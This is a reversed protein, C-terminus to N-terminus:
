HKPIEPLGSTLGAKIARGMWEDALPYSQALGGLGHMYMHGLGRMASASGAKAGKAFWSAAKALNKPVGFGNLYHNGIAYMANGSGAAAAKRYLAMARTPHAIGNPQGNDYLMGLGYNATADGATISKEFWRKAKAPDPQLGMGQVYVWGLINMAHASGGAAAKKFWYLATEDNPLEGHGTAFAIGKNVMGALVAAPLHQIHVTPSPSPTIPVPSPPPAPTVDTAVPPNTITPTLASPAAASSKHTPATNTSAMQPLHHSAPRNGAAAPQAVHQGNAIPTAPHTGNAGASQGGRHAMYYGVAGAIVIVAVGISIAKSPSGRQIGTSPQGAAGSNEEDPRVQMGAADAGCIPCRTSESADFVHGDICRLLRKAM